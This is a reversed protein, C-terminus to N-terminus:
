ILNERLAKGVAGGSNNVCLKRYSHKVHVRVTEVSIHLDNAIMRYTKDDALGCLVEKERPTLFFSEISVSIARSM